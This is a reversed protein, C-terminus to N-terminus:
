LHHALFRYCTRDATIEFNLVQEEINRCSPFEQLRVSRFQIIDQRSEFTNYQYIRIDMKNKVAISLFQHVQPRTMQTLTNSIHKAFLGTM